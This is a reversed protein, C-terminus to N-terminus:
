TDTVRVLIKGPIAVLGIVNMSNIQPKLASALVSKFSPRTASWPDAGFCIMLEITERQKSQLETFLIDLALSIASLANNFLMGCLPRVHRPSYLPTPRIIAFIATSGMTLVAMFLSFMVILLVINNIPFSHDTPRLTLKSRSSAEYAALPLMFCFVYALVLIPASIAGSTKQQDDVFRFLPSLLAALLSLQVFTRITCVLVDEALDVSGCSYYSGVSVFTSVLIAPLLNRLSLEDNAGRSAATRSSSGMAASATKSNRNKSAGSGASAVARKRLAMNFTSPQKNIKNNVPLKIDAPRLDATFVLSFSLSGAPVGPSFSLFDPSRSRSDKSSKPHRPRHDARALVSRGSYSQM